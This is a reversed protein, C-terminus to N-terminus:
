GTIEGRMAPDVSFVIPRLLLRGDKVSPIDRDRLSFHSALLQGEQVRQALTVFRNQKM